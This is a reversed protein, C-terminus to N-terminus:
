EDLPREVDLISNLPIRRGGVVASRSTEDIRTLPGRIAATRGKEYFSVRVDEGESLGGMAESLEALRDESLDPKPILVAEKSCALEQSGKLAAFPMFQRARGPHDRAAHPGCRAISLEIDRLVAERYERERVDLFERM